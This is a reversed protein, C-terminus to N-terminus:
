GNLAALAESFSGVPVLKLGDAAKQAEALNERPVFFLEAGAKKAAVIKKDVGGIPYVKGQGDIAGTGAITRGGSLDGPTLLDYLGLAWMLGASPGSISDSTMKVSFPFNDIMSVGVLPTKSNACLARTLKVDETNGAQEVRFDIPANTPVADIAKSAAAADEVAAGNISKVLDTPYLNGDAPCGPYVGEVLVGPRSNKPWNALERLVVATADVQSQDMQAVSQRNQQEVTQGPAIVQDKPLITQSSDLKAAFLEYPNLPGYESVTTLIFHGASPYEQHGDVAIL